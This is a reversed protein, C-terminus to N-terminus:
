TRTRLFLSGGDIGRWSAADGVSTKGRRTSCANLTATSRQKVGIRAFMTPGDHEAVLLLAQMAARWEEADHEAKPLKTIFLAADCKTIGLSVSARWTAMPATFAAASAWAALTSGTIWCAWFAPAVANRWCGPEGSCGSTEAHRCKWFMDATGGVVPMRRPLRCTQKTSFLSM